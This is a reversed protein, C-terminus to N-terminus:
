GITRKSWLLMAMGIGSIGEFIGVTQFEELSKIAYQTNEKRRSIINHLIFDIQNSGIIEYATDNQIATLIIGCLGNILSDNVVNNNLINSILNQVDIDCDYFFEPYAIMAGCLGDAIGLNCHTLFVSLETDIHRQLKEYQKHLDPVARHRLIKSLVHFHGLIGYGFSFERISKGQPLNLSDFKDIYSVAIDLYKTNNTAEYAEIFAYSVGLLGNFLSHDNITEIQNAITNVYREIRSLLYERNDDGWKLLRSLAFVVGAKGSHLDCPTADVPFLEFMNVITNAINGFEKNAPIQGLMHFYLLLGSLGNAIGIDLPAVKWLGHSDDYVVNNWTMTNTTTDIVADGLIRKGIKISEDLFISADNHIRHLTDLRTLKKSISCEAIHKACLDEYMGFSVAMHIKQKAIKNCDLQNIRNYTREYPSEKLYSEIVEGTSTILDHSDSHCYFIPIDGELMDAVEFAIPRKDRYGYAWANDFMRELCIMERSYNPHSSFEMFRAYNITAKLISRVIVGRFCQLKGSESLLDNKNNLFYYLCKEFGDLIYDKYEYFSVAKDEFVPINKAGATKVEQYEFHMNDTNADAMVLVKYPWTQEEGGLASIDVGKDDGKRSFAIMPIMATGAISDICEAYAVHFADNPMDLINILLHQMLTEIDVIVPYESNAIINEYHIDSGAFMHVIACLQGFRKYYNKIQAPTNCPTNEIFEEFTYESKYIGKCVYLDLLGSKNNFDEIFARFKYGIELNRPKYVVSNSDFSIIVVSKGRQHVDGQACAFNTVLNSSIDPFLLNCIEQYDSDLRQLMEIFHKTIQECKTTIRRAIVPYKKYFISIDDANTLKEIIFTRYVRDSSNGDVDDDTKKYCHLEWVLTKISLSILSLGLSEILKNIADDPVVINNWQCTLIRHRSWLLFPAISQSLNLETDEDILDADINKIHSAYYEMIEYYLTLWHENGIASSIERKEDASLAKLALNLDERTMNCIDLMTNIHVEELLGRVDVWKQYALFDQAIFGFKKYLQLREAITLADYAEM